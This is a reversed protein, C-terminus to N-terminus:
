ETGEANLQVTICFSSREDREFDIACLFVIYRAADSIIMEHPLDSRRLGSISREVPRKAPNIGSTCGTYGHSRKACKDDDGVGSDLQMVAPRRQM